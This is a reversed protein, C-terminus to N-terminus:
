KQMRYKDMNTHGVMAHTLHEVLNTYRIPGVMNIHSIHGVMETHPFPAVM